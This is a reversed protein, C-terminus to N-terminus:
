NKNKYIYSKGKIVFLVIMISIIFNFITTPNSFWTTFFSLMCYILLEGYILYIISNKSGRNIGDCRAQICGCVFGFLGSFAAVGIIGFDYYWDYILTLTTLEPKNIYLLNNVIEPYIFKLGSLAFLPFLSRVGMSHKGLDRVLINFNEYNNAIYIYPQQIFIPLDKKFEFIGKLYEINHSRSITLLVYVIILVVFSIIAYLPKIGKNILVFGILMLILAFVFQFRSVCLIPIIFGASSMLGSKILKKNRKIEVFLESLKINDMDINMGTYIINLIPLIVCLVTFYHLGSIHFYSYAHPVGYVFLPIYGLILAEAIFSTISIASVLKICIYLRDKYLFEECCDSKKFNFKSIAKYAIDYFAFFYLVCLFINIWTYVEWNIQLESLKLCALGQGGVFGLLFVQRLEIIKGSKKYLSFIIFILPVLIFISAAIHMNNNEFYYAFIQSLAYILVLYINNMRM